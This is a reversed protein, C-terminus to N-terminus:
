PIAVFNYGPEFPRQRKQSKRSLSARISDHQAITANLQPITKACLM